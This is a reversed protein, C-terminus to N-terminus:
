VVSKYVALTEQACKQWSFQQIQNQANVALQNRLSPNSLLHNLKTIFDNSNKHNFYLAASGLIERFCPIDSALVPLSAAMAELAPLAFGEQLSATVFATANQYLASLEADTAQGYFIISPHSDITRKLRQYFFDERGVLVLQYANNQKQNFESFAKILFELNKHPYASGVYLLYPKTIGHNTPTIAHNTLLPTVGEYIVQIKKATWPYYKVISDKTSRSIAIIKKAKKLTHNLILKFGAFKLAYHIRGLTTAQRQRNSELLILDHITVVFPQNFFYPVNWHPFHVLDLKEKLLPQFNIQEKLTYWRTNWLRKQFNSASPKYDDFNEKTLFIFFSDEKAIRELNLILEKVYRGLGRNKEEGWLRADIGIRM